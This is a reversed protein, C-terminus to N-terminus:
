RAEATWAASDKLNWGGGLAKYLTVVSVLADRRARALAIEAPYLEQQTQLLEYYSAQGGKYREFAVRVADRYAAVEREDEAVAQALKQRAILADSVDAFAALVTQEYQLKALEWDARAQRYEGKLTGAQFIPGTVNAGASWLAQRHNEIDQLRPSVAGFLASLGINPLFSGVTVGIQANAAVAADEAALIDPRRELLAAPLGAPVEPPLPYHALSANHSIPGPNRGLLLCLANESVAVQQELLPIQAAEAAQAAEASSTELRSAVGGRLRENFLQLSAGFSAAAERTVALEQDLELLDFYGTAVQTVLSLLVGRRGEESALYQARAAEDERRLKGWLDPEWAASLYGDFASTTAGNGTPNPSGFFTNRGRDANAAYSLSPFLSGRVQEAIARSQEVRAAAIRADFGGELASRVLANLSPDGYLEWWGLDALNRGQGNLSQVASADGRFLGPASTAPRRYNPGVACGAFILAALSGLFLRSRM